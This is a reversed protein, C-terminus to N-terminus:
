HSSDSVDFSRGLGTPVAHGPGPTVDTPADPTTAQPPVSLRGTLLDAIEAAAAPRAFLYGQGHTCELERFQTLEADHEIGEAVTLLDLSRGLDVIARALAPSQRGSVVSTVFSRDIKLVDVPFRHLYALSSYGTGFDDIALRVGLAKLEHLVALTREADHVFASETLELTLAGPPLGSSALASGVDGLLDGTSFQRMSVNVSVTLHESGPLTSRWRQVQACAEHLVIRGIGVVLGTEEALPIFEGPNILGRDPHEWRVLAEVAVVRRDDLAVIPQYHCRLQGEDIARQLDAQLHLREVVAAHMRPEFVEYRDRGDRKALYMAIDANRLVDAPDDGTGDYAVGISATVHVENDDVLIPRRLDALIREAIGAADAVGHHEEVVIAFEDSGLRALTDARRTAAELRQAVAVLVTDGAVHGLRDNIPKFGDLDVYIVAYRGGTRGLRAGTHELRDLLLARNALGTLSDHFARHELQEELLRRETVDRSSVVFGGVAPDHNLNRCSSEVPIYTGDAAELRCAILGSAGPAALLERVSEVVQGRDEPHIVELYTRGVLEDPGYGMVRRTSPSQYTIRGEGIILTVDSAGALMAHIRAQERLHAVQADAERGWRRYASTSVVAAVVFAAPALWIAGPSPPGGVRVAVLVMVPVAVVLAVVGLIELVHPRPRAM